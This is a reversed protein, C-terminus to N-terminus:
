QRQQLLSLHVRATSHQPQLQRQKCQQAKCRRQCRRRRGVCRRCYDIVCCSAQEVERQEVAAVLMTKRTCALTRTVGIIGTHALTPTYTYACNDNPNTRKLLKQVSCLTHVPLQTPLQHATFVASHRTYPRLRIYACPASTYHAPAAAKM